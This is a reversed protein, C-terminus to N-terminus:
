AAVSGSTKPIIKKRFDATNEGNIYGDMVNQVGLYIINIPSFEEYMPVKSSDIIVAQSPLNEAGPDPVIFFNSIAKDKFVSELSRKYYFQKVLDGWAPKTYRFDYYKADMVAIQDGESIVIDMRQRNNIAPELTEGTVYAPYPMWKNFSEIENDFCVGCMNEWVHEFGTMGCYFSNSDAFLGEKELLRKLNNLLRIERDAFILSLERTILSLSKERSYPLQFNKLDPAVSSLSNTFYWGFVKDLKSIIAAHIQTIENDAFYNTKSSYLETYVPRGDKRIFPLVDKIVKNWAIKGSNRKKIEPDPNCYLGYKIYDRLTDIAALPPLGVPEQDKNGELSVVSGKNITYKRICDILTKGNRFVGCANNDSFGKPWFFYLEDKFNIVGTFSNRKTVNDAIGLEVM